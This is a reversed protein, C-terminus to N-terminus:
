CICQWFPRILGYLMVNLLRVQPAWVQGVGGLGLVHGYEAVELVNCEPNAIGFIVSEVDAPHDFMQQQFAANDDLFSITVPFTVLLEFLGHVLRGEFHDFDRM